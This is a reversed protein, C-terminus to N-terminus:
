VHRDGHQLHLGSPLLARPRRLLGGEGAPLLGVRGDEAQLVDDGFRLQEQRRVQRGDRRGAREPREAQLVLARGRPAGQLLRLPPARLRPGRPLLAARGRLVGGPASPLLGLPPGRGHLLLHHRQPLQDPRRVHEQHAPGPGEPAPAPGPGEPAPAPGPGEADQLLDVERSVVDVRRVQRRRGAGPLRTNQRAVADRHRGLPRRVHLGRPQLRHRAPLLPPSGRLVRGAPSSVGLLKPLSCCAWGGNPLKCCTNGDACVATGNCTVVAVKSQVEELTTMTIATERRTSVCASHVVDCDTGEPCCHIRDSCCIANPMPCCGYTYDAVKCCTTQDPCESHDPCEVGNSASVIKKLTEGEKCIGRELDCETNSPCCHLHDSCCTAQAYPCCGYAGSSLLCCTYSDPCSSGDPCSVSGVPPAASVSHNGRRRAPGKELMPFSQLSASQCKSHQLDCTTGEPCCHRKDECCVAKTFLCCGWSGDAMQCCTTDDPCESERDPCVVAKLKEELQPAPRPPLRRRWPLSVTRNVCRGHVLDCLTGEYCCHLHDSCCEANPLPCCLYQGELNKCCTNGSECTDGDPCIMASSLGLLAPFLIWMM